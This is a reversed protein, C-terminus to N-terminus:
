RDTGGVAIVDKDMATDANRDRSDPSVGNDAGGAM